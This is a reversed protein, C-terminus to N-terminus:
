WYLLANTPDKGIAATYNDIAVSYKGDLYSTNGAAADGQGEM